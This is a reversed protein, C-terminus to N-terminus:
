SPLKIQCKITFKHNTGEKQTLVLEVGQFYPSAQLGKMFAAITPNDIAVGDLTISSGKNNLSTIWAKEPIILSLQDLVAVPGTKKANLDKIIDLKRELEKKQAKIKEIEGAEATLRAIELKTNTMEQQLTEKKNNISTQVFWSLIFILVVCLSLLTIHEILAKKRLESRIPLLNIKVM